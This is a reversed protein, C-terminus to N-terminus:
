KTYEVQYVMFMSFICSV